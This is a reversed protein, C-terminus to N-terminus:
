NRGEERNDDDKGLWGNKHVWPLNDQGGPFVYPADCLSDHNLDKCGQPRTHYNSWYNGVILVDQNFVAGESSQVQPSPNGIFNNNYIEIHQLDAFVVSIGITRNHSITNNKVFNNFGRISIGCDNHSVINDTINVGNASTKFSIGCGQNNLIRNNAILAGAVHGLVIGMANNSLVNKTFSFNSGGQALLALGNETFSSDMVTLPGWIGLSCQTVRLNKVTGGGQICGLSPDTGKSISHGNGDLTINNDAIVISDTLDMTLMCTKTALNWKGMSTCDGGTADDRITKTGPASRAVGSGLLSLLLIALVLSTFPKKM